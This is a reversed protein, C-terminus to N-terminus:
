EETFVRKYVVLSIARTVIFCYYIVNRENVGGVVTPPALVLLSPLGSWVRKGGVRLFVFFLPRGRSVLAPYSPNCQSFVMVFFNCWMILVLRVSCNFNGRIITLRIVYDRTALGSRLPSPWSFLAEDLYILCQLMESVLTLVSRSYGCGEGDM